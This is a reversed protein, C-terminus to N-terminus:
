CPDPARVLLMGFGFARHRGVGRSLLGTFATGDTVTLTGEFVAERRGILVRRNRGPRPKGRMTKAAGEGPSGKRWLSADRVAVLRATDFAAANATRAALWDRYVTERSPSSALVELKIRDPPTDPEAAERLAREREILAVYPDVEQGHEIRPHHKGVRVTPCVRVRFGLRQGQVFAPMPKAAAREWDVSQFAAADGRAEAAGRITPLGAPSYALVEILDRGNDPKREQIDFVRVADGDLIRALLGHILYGSDVSWDDTVLGHARGCQMLLRPVIPLRLMYLTM